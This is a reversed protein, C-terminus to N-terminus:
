SASTRSRGGCAHVPVGAGPRRAAHAGGSRPRAASLPLPLRSVAKGAHRRPLPGARASDPAPDLQLKPVEVHFWFPVRRVDSGRTLVVFGTGDGPERRRRFRSGRPCHPGAVLTTALPKLKAGAADVARSRFPGRPRAAAPTPRRSHKTGSFGRRVLGWGLSTPDTFILPQDARLLDIRGGGERLM